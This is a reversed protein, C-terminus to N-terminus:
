REQAILDRYHYGSRRINRAFTKRNVSALGFQPYFGNAWEFNDILSWHMYGILNVGNDLARHMAEFTEDLWWSRYIDQSDAVGNETIMIPLNYRKKLDMLADYLHDPRMWWGADSVKYNDNRLGKVGIKNHFYYNLGIFDLSGNINDLYLENAFFRAINAIVRNWPATNYAEFSSNQKAIGIMSDPNERKLIEYGIKHIKVLRIYYLYLYDFFNKKQPPWEGSAYSAYSVVDPENLTIWYKVDAGFEDALTSFYNTFYKEINPSMLGGEDRVWLPLTWHWCTVVPEIGNKELERILNKYYQIGEQNPEGKQPFIRSWEISFRYGNLNLDKLIKIDELYKHYSDCAIGSIRLAPDEAMTKLHKPINCWPYGGINKARTEATKKEWESWNNVNEGEIQHSSTAAGWLFSKSFAKKM